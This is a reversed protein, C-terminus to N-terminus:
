IHKWAKGNWIQSILTPHVGYIDALTQRKIGSNKMIKIVKAQTETLKSQPRNEGRSTRGKADRDAINETHTGAKLHEPNICQRNDCIHMVVPPREGTNKWYIWRHLKTHGDRYYRIYGDKDKCKHSTSIHCGNEDIKYEIPKIPRAM